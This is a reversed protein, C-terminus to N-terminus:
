TCVSPPPPVVVSAYTRQGLHLGDARESHSDPESDSSEYCNAESCGELPLPSAYDDDPPCCSMINLLVINIIYALSSTKHAM